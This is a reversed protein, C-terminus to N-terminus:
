GDIGYKKLEEQLEEKTLDAVTKAPSMSGDSSTHDVAKKDSMDTVNKGVFIAFTKDYNAFLGNQILIDKQLMEAKKIADFFEQHKDAWNSLTETHVGISFAFREKTPLNCPVRIPDGFKDVAVSKSVEGDETEVEVEVYEYIPKNFFEIIEQCYKPDYKSPRGSTECGKAYQNGKAAAM